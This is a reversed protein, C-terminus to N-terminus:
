FMFTRCVEGVTVYFDTFCVCVCVCPLLFRECQASYCVHVIYPTNNSCLITNGRRGRVTKLTFEWYSLM